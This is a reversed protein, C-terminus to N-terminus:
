RGRLVAAGQHDRENEHKKEELVECADAPFAIDSGYYRVFYLPKGDKDETVCSVWFKKGKKALPLMLDRTLQVTM